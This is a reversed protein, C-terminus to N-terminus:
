HTFLQLLLDSETKKFHESDTKLSGEENKGRHRLEPCLLLFDWIRGGKAGTPSEFCAVRQQCTYAIGMGGAVSTAM